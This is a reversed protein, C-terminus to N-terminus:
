EEVQFDVLQNDVLMKIEGEAKNLAQTCYDVMTLGEKFLKVGEDLAVDGSDLASVIKELETIAEEYTLKKKAM